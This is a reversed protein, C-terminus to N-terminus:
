GEICHLATFEPRWPDQAGTQVTGALHAQAQQLDSNVLWTSVSDWQVPPQACAERHGM